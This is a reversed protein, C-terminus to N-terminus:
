DLPRLRELLTKFYLLREVVPHTAVSKGELKLLIFVSLFQCYSALLNYKMELYSLGHYTTEVQNSQLKSLMPALKAQLM